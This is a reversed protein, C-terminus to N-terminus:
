AAIAQRGREAVAQIDVETLLPFERVIAAATYGDDIYELVTAVPVRTGAVVLANQSVNRRKEFQGIQASQRAKLQEAANQVEHIVDIIPM